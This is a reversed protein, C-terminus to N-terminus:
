VCPDININIETGGSDGPAIGYKEPDINSETCFRYCTNQKFLPTGPTGTTTIDMDWDCKSRSYCKMTMQRPVDSQKVLITQTFM